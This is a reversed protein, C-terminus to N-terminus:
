SQFNIKKALKIVKKIEEDESTEKKPKKIEKSYSFNRIKRYM